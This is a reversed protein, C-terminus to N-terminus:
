KTSTKAQLMKLIDAPSMGTAGLAKLISAATADGKSSKISKTRKTTTTKETSSDPSPMKPLPVGAYRHLFANKRTEREDLMGSLIERHYELSLELEDDSLSVIKRQAFLWNLGELRVRKAKKKYTSTINGEDDTCIYEKTVTEKFMSVDSCCEVCQRQDITSAFHICFIKDCSSCRAFVIETLLNSAFCAPCVSNNSDEFVGM